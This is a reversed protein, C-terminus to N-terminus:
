RYPMYKKVALKAPYTIGQLEPVKELKTLWRFTAINFRIAMNLENLDTSDLNVKASNYYTPVQSLALPLQEPQDTQLHQLVPGVDYLSAQWCHIREKELQEITQNCIFLLSDHQGSLSDPLHMSSIAELDYKWHLAMSLQDALNTKSPIFLYDNLTQPWSHQVTKELKNFKEIATSQRDKCSTFLCILAISFIIPSIYNM